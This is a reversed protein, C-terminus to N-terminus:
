IAVGARKEKPAARKRELGADKASIFSVLPFEEIGIRSLEEGLYYGFGYTGDPDLKDGKSKFVVKVRLIDEDEFDVEETVRVAPINAKPLRERALKEAIEKVKEIKSTNETNKKM